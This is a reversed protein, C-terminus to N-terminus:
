FEFIFSFRQTQDFIGFRGYAYDLRLANHAIQFQVGGGLTFTDEDSNFKYGGRLFILERLGFETGLSLRHIFDRADMIDGSLTWRYTENKMIDTALGFRFFLPIDWYETALDSRIVKTPYAPNSAYQVSLESGSLRMSGGLNSLSMGIRLNNLFNTEFISGIDIAVASAKEKSLTERILKVTAGVSFRDTIQKSYTLGIAFDDATFSRGTGDPFLLTTEDIEGSSFYHASIGATGLNGFRYCAGIYYIKTGVLWNTQQVIIESRRIRDLAGPNWYMASIDESIAVYADGMALARAGIGVKLFNAMSTGVQELSGGNQASIESSLSCSSLFLLFWLRKMNTNKKM